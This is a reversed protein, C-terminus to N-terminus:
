MSAVFEEGHVELKPKVHQCPHLFHCKTKKISKKRYVNNLPTLTLWRKWGCQLGTYVFVLEYLGCVPGLDFVLVLLWRGEEEPAPVFLLDSACACVGCELTECACACEHTM